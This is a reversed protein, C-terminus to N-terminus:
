QKGVRREESRPIMGPDSAGSSGPSYAKNNSLSCKDAHGSPCYHVVGCKSAAACSAAQTWIARWLPCIPRTKGVAHVQWGTKSSAEGLTQVLRQRHAEDEFFAERRDSRNM